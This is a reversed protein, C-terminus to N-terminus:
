DDDAGAEEAEGDGFAARGLEVQLHQDELAAVVDPAVGVALLLRGGADLHVLVARVQEVGGVLLHPLVGVPERGEGVVLVPDEALVLALDVRERHVQPEDVLEEALAVGSSARASIASCDLSIAVSSAEFRSSFAILRM